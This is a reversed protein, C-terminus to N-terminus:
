GLIVWDALPQAERWYSEQVSEDPIQVRQATGQSDREILMINLCAGFATRPAESIVVFEFLDGRAARWEEDLAIQGMVSKTLPDATSGQPNFTSVFPAPPLQNPTFVQPNPLSNSANYPSFPVRVHINYTRTRHTPKDSPGSVKDLSDFPHPTKDIALEATESWFVLYDEPWAIEPGYHRLPVFPMKVRHLSDLYADYDNWHDAYLMNTKRGRCFVNTERKDAPKTKDVNIQQRNHHQVITRYGTDKNPPDYRFHHWYIRGSSSAPCQLFSVGIDGTGRWGAWSWSPFWKRREWPIHQDFKWLLYEDFYASPIGQIDVGLDQGRSTLFGRLAAVADTEDSFSRTVFSRLMVEYLNRGSLTNPPRYANALPSSM